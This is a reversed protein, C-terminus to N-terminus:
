VYNKSRGGTKGKRKVRKPKGSEPNLYKSQIICEWSGDELRRTSGAGNENRGTNKAM